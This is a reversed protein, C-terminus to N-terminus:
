ATGPQIGGSSEAPPVPLSSQSAVVPAPDSTGVRRPANDIRLHPPTPECVHNLRSVMLWWNVYLFSESPFNVERCPKPKHTPYQLVQRVLM